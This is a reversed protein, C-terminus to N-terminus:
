KKALQMNAREPDIIRGHFDPNLNLRDCSTAQLQLTGARSIFPVSDDLLALGIGLRFCQYVATEEGEKNPPRSDEAYRYSYLYVKPNKVYKSIWTIYVEPTRWYQPEFNKYLAALIIRCLDCTKFYLARGTVKSM